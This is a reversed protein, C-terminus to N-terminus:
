EEIDLNFMIVSLETAAEDEGYFWLGEGYTLDLDEGSERSDVTTCKVELEETDIYYLDIM